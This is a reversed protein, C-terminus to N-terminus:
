GQACDKLLCRGFYCSVLDDAVIFVHLVGGVDLSPDASKNWLGRVLGSSQGSTSAPTRYAVDHKGVEVNLPGIDADSDRFVATVVAGEGARAEHLNRVHRKNIEGSIQTTRFSVLRAFETARVNMGAVIDVHFVHSQRSRLVRRACPCTATCVNRRTSHM